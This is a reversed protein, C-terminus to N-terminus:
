TSVWLRKFGVFQKYGKGAPYQWTAITRGTPPYPMKLIAPRFPNLQKDSIPELKVLGIELHISRLNSM